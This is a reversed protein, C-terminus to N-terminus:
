NLALVGRGSGIDKVTLREGLETLITIIEDDDMKHVPDELKMNMGYRFGADSDLVNVSIGGDLPSCTLSIKLLHNSVKRVSDYRLEKRKNKMHVVDFVSQKSAELLNDRSSLGNNSSTKSSHTSSSKKKRLSTSLHGVTPSGKMRKLLIETKRRDDEWSSVNYVGKQNRISRMIRLNDRIRQENQITRARHSRQLSRKPLVFSDTKRNKIASLKRLLQLNEREIKKQREKQLMLRKGNNELFSHKMPTSNDCNKRANSKSTPKMNKLNKKHIQKTRAVEKAYLFRNSYSEAM